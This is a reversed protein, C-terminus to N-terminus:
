NYLFSKIVKFVADYGEKSLHLGEKTYSLKLNNDSDLLHSYVDIYTVKNKDAIDKIKNNIYVVDKNNRYKFYNKDIKKNNTNNIPYISQIYIETNPSHVKINNIIEEINQITNENKYNKGIDNIGILLFLKSPQYKYVDEDLRKLIGITTDSIIGKNLIILDDFYDKFNAGETISDGIFVIVKPKVYKNVVQWDKFSTPKNMLFLLFISVIALIIMFLSKNKKNM